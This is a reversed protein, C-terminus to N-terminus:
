DVLEMSKIYDLKPFDKKLYANGMSQLKGQAPGRGRPAGEGYGKYLSDVVDMGEVVEGFAAFGMGDLKSNDNYNIFLQTTRTNAGRTAFTVRGRKNGEKVPDDDIEATKWAGNVEPYGSIGFQVMFGDIARFFAADSYYGIDVLNYFRDAGNPAWGKHVLIVFEGKTTTVKVKYDGPAEKTALSPDKLAPNAGEPLTWKEIAVDAAKGKANGKGKAKAPEKKAPAEKPAEEVAPEESGSCAALGLVALLTLWRM